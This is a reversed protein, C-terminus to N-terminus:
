IHEWLDAKQTKAEANKLSASLKSFQVTTTKIIGAQKVYDYEHQINDELERFQVYEKSISNFHVQRIQQLHALTPRPTIAADHAIPVTAPAGSSRQQDLIQIRNKVATIRQELSENTSAWSADREASKKNVHKASKDALTLLLNSLESFSSVTNVGECFQQTDEMDPNAMINLTQDISKSRTRGAIPM